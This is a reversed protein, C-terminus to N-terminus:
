KNIANWLLIDTGDNSNRINEVLKTYSLQISAKDTKTNEIMKSCTRQYDKLLLIELVNVKKNLKCYKEVSLTKNFMANLKKIYNAQKQKIGFCGLIRFLKDGTTLNITILSQKTINEKRIPRTINDSNFFNNTNSSKEIFTDNLPKFELPRTKKFYLQLIDPFTIYRNLFLFLLKLSSIFGGIYAFVGQVKIYSRYYAEETRTLSVLHSFFVKTELQPLLESEKRDIQLFRDSRLSQLLISEDTYYNINKLWFITRSYVNPNTKTFGNQYTIKGPNTYNYGDLIADQIVYHLNFVPLSKYIREADWCIGGSTKNNCLALEIRFTQADGGFSGWLSENYGKPVCWYNSINVLTYESVEKPYISPDCKRLQFRRSILKQDSNSTTNIQIADLYFDFKKEQDLLPVGLQDVIAFMMVFSENVNYTSSKNLYKTYLISPERKQIIDMGFAFFALISLMVLLITLVGGIFTKYSSHGQITLKVDPGLLDLSKFFTKM